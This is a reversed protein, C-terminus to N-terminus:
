AASIGYLTFTTGSSISGANTNIQITNIASTSRWCGASTDYQGSGLDGGKQLWNKYTTTNSYNLFELIHTSNTTSAACLYPNTANTEGGAGVTSSYGYIQSQNYNSGTDISGNGLNLRFQNSTTTGGNIILILDTYTTPISTFTYSSASSGLTTTAIPTYTSGAAM